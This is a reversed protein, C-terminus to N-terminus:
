IFERGHIFSPMEGTYELLPWFYGWVAQKREPPTRAHSTPVMLMKM